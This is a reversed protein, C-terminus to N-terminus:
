DTSQSIAYDVLDPIFQSAGEPTFHTGDPRAPKGNLSDDCPVNSDRCVLNTISFYHTKSNSKTENLLLENWKNQYSVGEKSILRQLFWHCDTSTCRDLIGLGSPEIPVFVVEANQSTLLDVAERLSDSSYQWFEQSAPSISVGNANVADALEYRSMWIVASPRYTELM